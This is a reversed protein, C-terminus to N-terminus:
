TARIRGIIEKVRAYGRLWLQLYDSVGGQHYFLYVAIRGLSQKAMNVEVKEIEALELVIKGEKLPWKSFSLVLFDDYIAFRIYPIFARSCVNKLYFIGLCNETYLPTRGIERKHLIDKEKFAIFHVIFMFTFGILMGVFITSM